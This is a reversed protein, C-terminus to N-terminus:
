DAPPADLLVRVRRLHPSAPYRRELAEARAEAQVRSGSRLLAEIALVEREQALAGSPYLERHEALVQLAQAPRTRLAEARRILSLESEPEVSPLAENPVVPKPVRARPKDVPKPAAPVPVERVAPQPVVPVAVPPEVLETAVAKAEVGPAPAPSPAAPPRAPWWLAAAGVAGVVAVIKVMGSATLKSLLGKGAIGAPSFGAPNAPAVGSALAHDPAALVALGVAPAVRKALRELDEVSPGETQGVRLLDRVYQSADPDDLWPKLNM